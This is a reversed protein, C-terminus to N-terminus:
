EISDGVRRLVAIVPRHDSGVDPCVRCESCRLVSGHLVHDIRVGHWSTHKTYGWGLGAEEFADTCCRSWYRRYIASETTMNFDGAIVTAAPAEALWHVVLASGADRLAINARSRFLM